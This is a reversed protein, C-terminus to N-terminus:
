LNKYTIASGAISIAGSSQLRQFLADVEGSSPKPQFLSGITSKLKAVTRPKKDGRRKLNKLVQSYKDGLSAILNSKAPKAQVTKQTGNPCKFEGKQNLLIQMKGKLSMSGFLTNLSKCCVVLNDDHNSGRNARAVLHELSADTTALSKKCFFCLGGQTFLLREKPKMPM